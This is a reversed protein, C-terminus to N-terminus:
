QVEVVDVVAKMGDRRLHWRQRASSNTIPTSGDLRWGVDQMEVVYGAAFEIADFIGLPEANKREGDDAPEGPFRAIINYMPRPTDTPFDTM